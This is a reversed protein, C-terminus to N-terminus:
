QEIVVSTGVECMSRLKQANWNALRFCGHSEARGIQEPFPTGHIGYTPLSLGIWSAGVPNNPGPPYIYRGIRGDKGAREETFTYNPKDAITKVQIEGPPPLKNKQAAISCPFLGIMRGQENFATIELRSLSVRLVDARGYPFRKPAPRDHSRSPNPLRVSAGAPPNPWALGPNLKRLLAVSCHGREAFLEEVTQYGMSALKAKEAPEKPIQVLQAHDEARVPVVVFLDKEGPFLREFAKDEEGPRYANEGTLGNVACYTALAVQTKRGLQGDITNCSFGRRDLCIQLALVSEFSAKSPRAPAPVARPPPAPVPLPKAVTPSKAVPLPKAVSPPLRSPKPPAPRTAVPAPAWAQRSSPPPPPLDQNAKRFVGGHVVATAAVALSLLMGRVM